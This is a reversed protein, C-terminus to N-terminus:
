FKGNESVGLDDCLRELLKSIHSLEFLVSVAFEKFNDEASIPKCPEEAVEVKPEETPKAEKKEEIGFYKKAFARQKKHNKPNGISDVDEGNKAATMFKIVRNASQSSIGLTEVILKVDVSNTHLKWVKVMIEPTITTKM